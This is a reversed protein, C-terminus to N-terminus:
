IRKLRQLLCVKSTLSMQFNRSWIIEVRNIIAEIGDLSGTREVERSFLIARDLIELGNNDLFQETIKIATTKVFNM